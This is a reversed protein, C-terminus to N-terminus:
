DKEQLAARIMSHFYESGDFRVDLETESNVVFTRAKRLAERLRDVENRLAAIEGDVDPAPASAPAAELAAELATDVNNWWDHRWRDDDPRFSECFAEVMKGTVKM